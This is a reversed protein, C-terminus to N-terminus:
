NMATRYSLAPSYGLDLKTAEDLLAWPAHDGAIDVLVVKLLNLKVQEGPDCTARDHFHTYGLEEATTILECMASTHDTTYISSDFELVKTYKM